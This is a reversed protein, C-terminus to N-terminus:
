RTGLLAERAFCLPIAGQEVLETNFRLESFSSGWAARCAERLSRVQTAGYLYACQYLPSYTMYRDVEAQAASKELGANEVMFDVMQAQTMQRLHYRTSVVIRAARLLRWFLHGIRARPDKFFGHEDFTMEAAVAWGEILFPSHWRAREPRRRAFFGQLHHGPILEHPVVTRTFPRANSRLCELKREQEMDPLPAAVGMFDGGYYGYAYSKQTELDSLKLRWCEECLKPIPFLQQERAFAIAEEAVSQVFLRQGGIPVTEQKALELGLRWDLPKAALATDLEFGDAAVLTETEKTMEAQLAALQEEGFALMAEPTFDIGEFALEAAYRERGIAFPSGEPSKKLEELVTATLWGDLERLAAVAQEAPSRIWFDLAPDAPTNRERWGDLFSQCEKARAAAHRVAPPERLAAVVAEDKSDKLARTSRAIADLWGALEQPAWPEGARDVREIRATPALFPVLPAAARGDEDDWALRARLTELERRFLHLDVRGDRDLAAEDVQALDAAAADVLERRRSRAEDTALPEFSTVLDDDAHFRTLRALLQAHDAVERDDDQADDRAGARAACACFAAAVLAAAHRAARNM